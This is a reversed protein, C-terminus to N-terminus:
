SNVTFSNCHELETPERFVSPYSPLKPTPRSLHKIIHHIREAIDRGFNIWSSDVLSPCNVGGLAVGAPRCRTAEM